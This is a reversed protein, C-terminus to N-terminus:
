FGIIGTIIFYKSLLNDYFVDIFVTDEKSDSIEKIINGNLNFVKIPESNYRNINTSLIYINCDINLFCGSFLEGVKNINKLHLLCNFNTIDWLKINNDEASISIILDRKNLKDFNHRFNVINKNHANKIENIKKNNILDYSIISNDKNAYILYFINNISNFVSFINDIWKNNFSDEALNYLLKINEPNSFEM